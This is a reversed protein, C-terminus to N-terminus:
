DGVERTHVLRMQQDGRGMFGDHLPHRANQFPMGHRSLDKLDGVDVVQPRRFAPRMFDREALLPEDVLPLRTREVVENIQVGVDRNGGTVNV